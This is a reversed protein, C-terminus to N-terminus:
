NHGQGGGGGGLFIRSGGRFVVTILFGDQMIYYTIFGHHLVNYFHFNM